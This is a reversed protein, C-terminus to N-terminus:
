WVNDYGHHKIGFLRETALYRVKTGNTYTINSDHDDIRLGLLKM